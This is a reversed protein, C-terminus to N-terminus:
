LHLIVPLAFGCAAPFTVLIAFFFSSSGIFFVLCFGLKGTMDSTAVKLRKFSGMTRSSIRDGGFFFLFCFCFVFVIMSTSSM